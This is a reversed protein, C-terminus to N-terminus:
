KKYKVINKFILILNIIVIILYIITFIRMLSSNINIQRIMCESWILSLYIIFFIKTIHVLLKILEKVKIEGTKTIKFGAKSKNLFYVIVESTVLIIFSMIYPYGVLLFDKKDAIVDFTGDPAFHVGLENPLTEYSLLIKFLSIIFISWSVITIGKNVSLKKM